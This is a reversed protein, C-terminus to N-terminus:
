AGVTPALSRDTRSPIQGLAGHPSTRGGPATAFRAPTDGALRVFERTLHSQDAYGSRAAIDALAPAGSALSVAAREFRIVRSAAKPTLGVQERFRTTVHRHSWGSKRVLEAVTIRGGSDQLRRWMWSVLPDPAPGRDAMRLLVDDVVAFREAWTPLSALHDPLSGALGPAVAEPEVVRHALAAGPIGLIQYAGLPTLYVQLGFQSGEVQTLTPGPHLGAVFSVYSRGAGEGGPKDVVDLRPGFSLILPILSNAAM